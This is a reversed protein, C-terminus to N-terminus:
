RKSGTQGNYLGGLTLKMRPPEVDVSKVKWRSGLWTIYLISHFHEFIFRNAVISIVNNFTVDDVVQDSGTKSHTFKLVDGQVPREITRNVFIDSGPEKPESVTFAIIGSYKM